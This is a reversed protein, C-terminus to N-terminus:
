SADLEGDGDTHSFGLVSALTSSLGPATSPPFPSPVAMPQTVLHELTPLQVLLCATMFNFMTMGVEQGLNESSLCGTILEKPKLM